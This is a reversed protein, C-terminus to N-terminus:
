SFISMNELVYSLKNQDIGTDINKSRFYSVLRETPMNGVLENNAMPCGGFGKITSDFRKCGNEYAADIKEKWYPITTHFHAGFEINSYENILVNFLSAINNPKSVGITDSLSIINVGINILKYSLEAVLDTHYKEHYPNGFAMSIYVVLEKDHKLSLEKIVEVTSLADNISKNTNMMQFQNSVSLPFGLYSINKYSCAENAGRVNAVISLLKTTTNLLDLGDLVKATDKLQPIHKASVFSGFDITDFGVKLLDNIYHIKKDTPIFNKIGQMADRPCEIIKM